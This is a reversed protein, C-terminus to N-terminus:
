ARIAINFCDLCDEYTLSIDPIESVIWSDNCRLYYLFASADEHPLGALPMTWEFVCKGIVRIEKSLHLAKSEAFVEFTNVIAINVIM